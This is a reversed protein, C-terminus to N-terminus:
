CSGAFYPYVAVDTVPTRSYRVHLVCACVHTHPSDCLMVDCNILNSSIDTCIHQVSFSESEVVASLNIFKYDFTALSTANWPPPPFAIGIFASICRTEKRFLCYVLPLLKELGTLRLTKVNLQSYYSGGGSGVTRTMRM